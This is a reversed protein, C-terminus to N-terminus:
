GFPTVTGAEDTFVVKGDETLSFVGAGLSKRVRRQLNGFQVDVDGGVGTMVEITAGATLALQAEVEKKEAMSAGWETLVKKWTAQVQPLLGRPDGHQTLHKVAKALKEEDTKQREILSELEHLRRDLDPNFGVQVKTLGGAAAGLTPVRVRMMARAAGGVLRGRPSEPSGVLIENYAELTCHVALDTIAIVTKAHIESSEAFRASVSLAARVVAHAIIGGAVQVHGECDIHAGEVTGQVIIDGTAQVKMGPQVDEAIEISGDFKINGSAMSVNRLRLVQEVTVAADTHMPQGSFQARLLNADSADVVSGPHKAEFPLNKGPEAPLAEGRVNRGPTGATPPHRRMLPQDAKVVPIDGLQHFDIHGTEDVKPSRDRADAVLLEFRTDVGRVPPTAVAALVRVAQDQECAQQLALRDMGHVVGASALGQLLEELSLPKGGRAPKIHVWAQSADRAIEVSYNADESHAVVVEFQGADSNWRTVLDALAAASLPWAGFGAGQLLTQVAAVDLAPRPTPLACRVVLQGEVETFSLGSPQQM